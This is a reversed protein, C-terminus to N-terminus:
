KTIAKVSNTKTTLTNLSTSLSANAADLSVKDANATATASQCAATASPSTTAPACAQLQATTADRFASEASLVQQWVQRAQNYANGLDNIANRAEATQPITGAQYQQEAQIAVTGADAIVTTVTKHVTAASPPNTVACGGLWAAGMVVVVIAFCLIAATRLENKRVPAITVTQNTRM